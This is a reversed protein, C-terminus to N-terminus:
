SPTRTGDPKCGLGVEDPAVGWESKAEFFTSKYKVAGKM